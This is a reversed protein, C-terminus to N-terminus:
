VRSTAPEFGAAGMWFARSIVFLTLSPQEGRRPKDDINTMLRVGPLVRRPSGPARGVLRRALSRCVRSRSRARDGPNNVAEARAQRTGGPEVAAPFRWVWPESRGTHPRTSATTGERPRRVGAILRVRQDAHSLHGRRAAGREAERHWCGPGLATDLDLHVPGCRVGAIAANRDLLPDGVRNPVRRFVECPAPVRPRSPPATTRASHIAYRTLEVRNRM